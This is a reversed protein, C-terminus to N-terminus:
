VAALGAELDAWLDDIHEVGVSLRLLGDGIGRAYREAAPISAHTMLAPVCALSEVGGLSEALTFVELRSLFRRTAELGGKIDISVMGGFGKMQKRATQHQPHTELGPYIVREIKPSRALRAALEAANEGHRQM